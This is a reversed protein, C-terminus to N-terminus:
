LFRSFPALAEDAAIRAKIYATLRPFDEKSPPKENSMMEDMVDDLLGFISERFAGRVGSNDSMYLQSLIPLLIGAVMESIFSNM